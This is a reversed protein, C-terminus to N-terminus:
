PTPTAALDTQLAQAVALLDAACGPPIADAPLTDVQAIFDTLTAESISQSTLSAARASSPSDQACLEAIANLRELSPDPVIIQVTGEGLLQAEELLRSANPNLWNGLVLRGGYPSYAIGGQDYQGAGFSPYSATIIGAEIDWLTTTDDENLVALHRNDRSWFVGAVSGLTTEFQYAPTRAILDYVFIFANDRIGLSSMHAITGAAVYREDHSYAFSLIWGDIIRYDPTIHTDTALDLPFEYLGGETGVMITQETVGFAITNPHASIQWQSLLTYNVADWLIVLEDWNGGSVIQTGNTHWDVDTVTSQHGFLNTLREGTSADAIWVTGDFSGLALREGDPSWSVSTFASSPETVFIVDGSLGDIVSLYGHTDAPIIGPETVTGPYVGAVALQTGDPSWDIDLIYTTAPQPREQASGTQVVSLLVILISLIFRLM